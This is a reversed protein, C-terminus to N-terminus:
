AARLAREIAASMRKVAKAQNGDFAPEMFPQALTGTEAIERGILWALEEEDMLPDHPTIKKVKIWDVLNQLPPMKGSPQGTKGYIGTGEEVARAYNVGAVVLAELPSVSGANIAQILSSFAKPAHRK